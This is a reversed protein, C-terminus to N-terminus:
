EPHRSADPTITLLVNSETCGEVDVNDYGVGFRAVISLRDCASLTEATVRPALVLLADFEHGVESPLENGWNPLFEVTTSPRSRLKDIGIDGFVPEGAANLFDHTLGVRFTPFESM